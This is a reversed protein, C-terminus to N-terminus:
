SLVRTIRVGLQGEIDVLEGSAVRRGDAVLDVPDTARCGLELIQGARLRALEDLTLRRGALEIRVTLLLADLMSAGEAGPEDLEAEEEMNLREAERTATEEAFIDRVELLITGASEGGDAHGRGTARTQVEGALMVSPGDGVFAQAGGSFRGAQWEVLPSEILVVDGRELEKLEPAYIETEGVVLRLSATEAFRRFRTLKEDSSDQARRESSLLPNLSADLAALAEADFVLRIVGQLPGVCVRVGAVVGRANPRSAGPTRLRSMLSAAHEGAVSMLRFLPEGAAENLRRVLTLCLFEVVARETKSLARLNESTPADEGLLRGALASAFGADAEGIVYAGEPEIAVVACVGPVGAAARRAAWEELNAERLDITELEVDGAAVNSLRALVRACSESVQTSFPAPWSALAASFRAELRSLRPLSADWSVRARARTTTGEAPERATESGEAAGEGAAASRERSSAFLDVAFPDEPTLAANVEGPAELEDASDARM